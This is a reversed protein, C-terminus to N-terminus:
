HGIQPQGELWRECDLAAMCGSGAATVAQRYKKDAVDGAAFVGEINTESSHAKAHVVYGEGDTKLPVKGHEDKLFSTNPVHGIAYFLGSVKLDSETNDKSNKVTLTDLLKGNGKAEVAQTNWVIKIKPHTMVRDQMVKVWGIL